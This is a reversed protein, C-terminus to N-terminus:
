IRLLRRAFSAAGEDAGNVSSDVPAGCLEETDSDEVAM